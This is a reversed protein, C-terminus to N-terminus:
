SYRMWAAKREMTPWAFICPLPSFAPVGWMDCSCRERQRVALQAIPWSVLHTHSPRCVRDSSEASALLVGGNPTLPLAASQLILLWILASASWHRTSGIHCAM